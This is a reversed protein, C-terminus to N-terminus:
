GVLARLSRLMDAIEDKGAIQDVESREALEYSRADSSLTPARCVFMRGYPGLLLKRGRAARDITAKVEKSDGKRAKCEIAHLQDNCYVAVDIDFDKHGKNATRAQEVVLALRVEASTDQLANRISMWVWDEFWESKLYRAEHASAFRLIGLAANPEFRVGPTNGLLGPLIRAFGSLQAEITKAFSGSVEAIAQSLKACQEGLDLALKEENAAALLAVRMNAVSQLGGAFVAEGLATTTAMRREASARRQEALDPRHETFGYARLYGELSLRNSGGILHLTRGTAHRFTVQNAHKAIFEIEVEPREMHLTTMGFWTGISMDTTGGTYIYTIKRAAPRADFFEKTLRSWGHLDNKDHEIKHREPLRNMGALTAEHEIASWFRPMPAIANAHDAAGDAAAPDLGVLVLVHDISAIGLAITPVVNVIQAQTAAVILWSEGGADSMFSAGM